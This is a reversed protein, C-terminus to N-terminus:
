FRGRWVLRAGDAGIDVRAAAEPEFLTLLLTGATLAAAGVGWGTWALAELTRKDGRADLYRTHRQDDSLTASPEAVAAMDDRADQMLFWAVTGGIAFAAGGAVLGWGLGDYSPSPPPPRDLVLAIAVLHENAKVRLDPPADDRHIFERYLERARELEGGLHRARAHNWLLEPAPDLAYAAEFAEAADHYRKEALAAVGVDHLRMAEQEPNPAASLIALVMCSIPSM